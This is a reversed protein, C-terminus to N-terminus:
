RSSSWPKAPVGIATKHDDIDGIVTSGAGVVSWDGIRAGPRVVAGIGVLAGTGVTVNGGLTSGPAVHVADSLRCDHEVIAGSNVVCFKGVQAAANVIALPMILTGAGIFASQSIITSPHILPPLEFGMQLLREGLRLRVANDGIAIAAKSVGRLLFDNADGDEGNVVKVGNCDTASARADLAAVPEYGAARVVDIVVKAHGGAGFILLCNSQEPM